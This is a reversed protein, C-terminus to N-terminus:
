IKNNFKKPIIKYYIAGIWHKADRISDTPASTFESCDFLPVLQLSGDKTNMQIAGKQRYSKEDESLLQWTFIKFTSDPSFLTSVTILSDFKHNFSYPTKLARVLGRTFSSDALVRETYTEGNVINYASKKIQEELQAINQAVVQSSILMLLFLIKKM